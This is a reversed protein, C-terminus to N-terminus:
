GDSSRGSRARHVPATQRSRPTMSSRRFGPRSRQTVARSERHGESAEHRPIVPRGVHKQARPQAEGDALLREMGAAIWLELRLALVM